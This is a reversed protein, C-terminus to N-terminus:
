GSVGLAELFKGVSCEQMIVLMHSGETKGKVRFHNGICLMEEPLGAAGILETIIAGEMDMSVAARSLSIRCGTYSALATLYTSATLSAVERLLDLFQGDLEGHGDNQGLVGELISRVMENRYVHLVMGHIDGSFPILVGVVREGVNGFWDSLSGYAMEIIQPPSYKVEAGIMHSLSAMCSGTGVNGIEQFVDKLQMGQLGM